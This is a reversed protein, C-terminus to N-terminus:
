DAPLTIKFRCEDDGLFISKQVEVEVPKQLITEWINKYFGASCYCYNASISKGLKVADRIRPCHCYIERRKEPDKEKLYQKLYGSKPIKTAVITNGNKFGAVGWGRRKVDAIMEEDLMLVNRLFIEFKDQLKSHVLDSDGTEAYLQRFEDLESQPYHCACELMIKRVVSDDVFRELRDMTKQTWSIIDEPSSKSIINEAGKTVKRAMEEGSHGVLSKYLKNLWYTEFDFEESM